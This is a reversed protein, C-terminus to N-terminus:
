YIRPIIRKPVRKTYEEWLAGYKQRCRKEDDRERTSLLLVYYLPYLWGWLLGPYGLSLTLGAAMLVEGLYNVHRSMGWFGGCLLTHEGDSIASPKLIGLFSKDPRTKFYYKQMNAGRSFTWGTFFVAASLAMLWVPMNPNPLPAAAWLGIAYFYPYFTLCGFTLKFGVREAFLDYTYLHVREFTMYDLLFWFFLAAYLIVSPSANDGYLMVHRAAFSLINLGLLTAGTLYLFMKADVRKGLFQPNFRRGLYFDAPLSSKIKPVGTVIAISAAIGLVCSGALGEWRREFLWDAPVGGWRTLLAFAAMSVTFVLIGNLRYTLPKGSKEDIVYGTVRRAPLVLHLLLTCATILWPAFFGAITNWTLSM